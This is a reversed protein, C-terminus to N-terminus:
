ATGRCAWGARISSCSCRCTPPRACWRTWSGDVDGHHVRADVGQGGYVAAVQELRTSSRPERETLFCTWHLGYRSLHQSAVQMVIEASAAEGSEYRGEGAYGDLYVVRKDLSGTMGGFQPIYRGLLAHKFTSPLAPESWYGGKTGTAM